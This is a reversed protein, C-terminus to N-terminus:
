LSTAYGVTLEHLGRGEPADGDLREWVVGDTSRYRRDPPELGFFLGEGYACRELYVDGLAHEDWDVGNTSTRAFADGVIVFRADGFCIGKAFGPLQLGAFWDAGDESVIVRGEITTAVFLGDGYAIDTYGNGDSEQRDTWTVGDASRVSKLGYGVAVYYGGGYAVAEYNDGPFDNAVDEWTLGDNSWARRGTWGVAVFRGDGYIVDRLRSGADTHLAWSEGDASAMSRASEDGGVAVFLGEGYAVGALSLEPDDGETVHDLPWTLGLDSSGLRRASDGVALVVPQPDAGATTADSSDSSDSSDLTDATAGTSEDSDTTPLAGIIQDHCAGIALTIIGLALGRLLRLHTNM